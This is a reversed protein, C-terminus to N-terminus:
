FEVIEINGERIASRLVTPYGDSDQANVDAGAAVLMEVIRPNGEEVARALVAEGFRDNRNVDAGANVLIELIELNGKDIAELIVPNGFRNKVNVNAGADVLMRLASVDGEELAWLLVVPAGSSDTANVDAGADVLLEAIQSNDGSLASYLVPRGSYDRANIAVGAALLIELIEPNGRRIADLLVPDGANDASNVDAGADVLIQVIEVRAPEPTDRWAITLGLLSDGSSNKANVDVGAAVVCRALETNGSRIARLFLNPDGNCTVADSADASANPTSTVESPVSGSNTLGEVVIAELTDALCDDSGPNAMGPVEPRDACSEVEKDNVRIGQGTGGTIRVTGELTGPESETTTSASGEIEDETAKSASDDSAGACALASALIGAAAIGTLMKTLRVRNM